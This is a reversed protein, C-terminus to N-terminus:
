SRGSKGVTGCTGCIFLMSMSPLKGSKWYLNLTSSGGEYVNEELFQPCFQSVAHVPSVVTLEGDNM